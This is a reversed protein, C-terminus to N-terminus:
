RQGLIKRFLKLIGKMMESRFDKELATHIPITEKMTTHAYTISAIELKTIMQYMQSM